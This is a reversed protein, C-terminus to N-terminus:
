FCFGHLMERDLRPFFYEDFRKIKYITLNQVVVADGIHAIDAERMRMRQSAREM